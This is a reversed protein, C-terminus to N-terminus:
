TKINQAFKINKRIILINTINIYIGNLINKRAEEILRQHEIFGSKGGWCRYLFNAVTM